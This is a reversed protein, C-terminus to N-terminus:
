RGVELHLHIEMQRNTFIFNTFIFIFIFIYFFYRIKEHITPNKLSNKEWKKFIEFPLKHYFFRGTVIVQLPFDVSYISFSM